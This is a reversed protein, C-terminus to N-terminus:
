RTRGNSSDWIGTLILAGAGLPLLSLLSVGNFVGSDIFAMRVLLVLIPFAMMALGAVTLWAPRRRPHQQRNMCFIHAAQSPHM